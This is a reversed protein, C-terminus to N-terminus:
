SVQDHSCTRLRAAPFPECEARFRAAELESKRWEARRRHEMALAKQTEVDLIIEDIEVADLMRKIRLVTSLVMMLDGYPLLLDRAAIECYTLFAAM